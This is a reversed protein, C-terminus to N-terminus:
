TYVCTHEYKKISKKIKIEHADTNQRRAHRHSPTPNGSVPTVPMQSGGHPHQFNFGLDAPLATLARLRQAVERARTNMNMHLVATSLPCREGSNKM